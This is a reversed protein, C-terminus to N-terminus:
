RSPSSSISSQPSKETVEYPRLSNIIRAIEPGTIRRSLSRNIQRMAFSNLFIGDLCSNKPGDAPISPVFVYLLPVIPSNSDRM